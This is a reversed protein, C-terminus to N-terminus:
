GPAGGTAGAEPPTRGWLLVDPEDGAAAGLRLSAEAVVERHARGLAEVQASAETVVRALDLHGGHRGWPQGRLLRALLVVSREAGEQVASDGHPPTIAPPQDTDGLLIEETGASLLDTAVAAAARTAWLRPSYKTVMRDALPWTSLSYTGTAATLTTPHLCPVVYWARLREPRHAGTSYRRREERRMQTLQAPTLRRGSHLAVHASLDPGRLPVGLRTLVEGVLERQSAHQYAALQAFQETKGQGTKMELVTLQGPAAGTGPQWAVMDWRPPPGEGRPGGGTRRATRLERALRDRPGTADALAREAVELEADSVSGDLLLQDFRRRAQEARVAAAAFRRALEKEQGAAM